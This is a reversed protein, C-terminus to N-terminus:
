AAPLGEPIVGVALAVSVMLMEVARGGRVLVGFAFVAAALTLIIWLLLGSFRAIKRTLPTTLDVAEAILFALRGTETRDGTAWVVGTGSGDTVLSGAYAMNARDGLLSDAQVPDPRKDAPTSEGTLASEDIRLSKSNLLRIDAPVRDGGTLMVIDGPVLETSSVRRIAGDRRVVADAVVMQMLAELATAAKSEQFFGVVANALVVILIVTADVWEGLLGTVLAAALLVLVLPATFQRLMRQWGPTEARATVQNAGYRVLRAAAEESSLGTELRVDTLRLAEHILLQHASQENM